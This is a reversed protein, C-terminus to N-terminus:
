RAVMWIFIILTLLLIHSYLSFTLDPSVRQLFSFLWGFIVLMMTKIVVSLGLLGPLKTPCFEECFDLLILVQNVVTLARFFGLAACIVLLVHYDELNMFLLM